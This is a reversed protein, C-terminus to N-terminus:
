NLIASDVYVYGLQEMVDAENYFTVTKKIKGNEMEYVSNTFIKVVNENDKFRVELEAWNLVWEGQSAGETRTIPVIRSESYKISEYINEANFQWNIVANEKDTTDSYSPGVGVYDDALFESMADYDLNEVAKIYKEVVAANADDNKSANSCSYTIALLLILIIPRKM